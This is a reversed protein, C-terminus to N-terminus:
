TRKGFVNKDLVKERSEISGPCMNCIHEEELRMWKVMDEVSIPAEVPRYSLYPKWDEDDLLDFKSLVDKLYAIPPCKWLKNEYLQQIAIGGNAWTCQCISWAGRPNKDKFPKMTRGYGTYQKHWIQDGMSQGLHGSNYMGGGGETTITDISVDYSRYDLGDNSWQLLKERIPKLKEQYEPEDSHYSVKFVIKNDILTEKLTPHNDIFFGNSLVCINNKPIYERSIKLIEELDKHLTPEGGLLRLELSLANFNDAWTEMYETFREVSLYGDLKYNSYHSCGTCFLNCMNTLHIGICYEYKGKYKFPINQNDQVYTREM